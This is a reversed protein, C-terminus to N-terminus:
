RVAVSSLHSRIAQKQLKGSATRALRRHLHRRRANTTALRDPDLRDPRSRVSPRPARSSSPTPLSAGNPPPVGVVAVEAIDPHGTM